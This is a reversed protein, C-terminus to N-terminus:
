KIKKVVHVSIFNYEILVMIYIYIYIYIYDSALTMVTLLYFLLYYNFEVSLHGKSIDDSRGSSKDRWLSIVSM